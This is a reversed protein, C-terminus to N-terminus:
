RHVQHPPAAFTASRTRGTESPPKSSNAFRTADHEAHLPARRFARTASSALRAGPALGHANAFAESVLAPIAGDSPADVPLGAGARVSLDFSGRGSCIANFTRWVDV